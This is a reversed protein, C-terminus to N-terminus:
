VGVVGVVALGVATGTVTPGVETGVTFGVLVGEAGVVKAGEGEGVVFFGVKAPTVYEGLVAPGLVIEGVHAVARLRGGLAKGWYPIKKMAANLYNKDSANTTDAWIIIIIM